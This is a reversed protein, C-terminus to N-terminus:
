QPWGVRVQFRLPFPTGPFTSGGEYNICSLGGCNEMLVLCNCGKMGLRWRLM